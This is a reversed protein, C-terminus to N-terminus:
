FKQNSKQYVVPNQEQRTALFNSECNKAPKLLLTASGCRDVFQLVADPQAQQQGRLHFKDLVRDQLVIQEKANTSWKM